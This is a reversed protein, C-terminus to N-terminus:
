GKAGAYRVSLKPLPHIVYKGNSKPLQYKFICIKCLLSINLFNCIRNSFSTNFYIFHINIYGRLLVAIRNNHIKYVDILTAMRERICRVVLNHGYLIYYYFYISWICVYSHREVLRMAYLITIITNDYFNILKVNM